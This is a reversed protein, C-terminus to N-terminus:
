LLFFIQVLYTYNILVLRAQNCSEYSKLLGDYKRRLESMCVRLLVRGNLAL